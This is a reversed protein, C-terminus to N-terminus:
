VPETQSAVKETLKSTCPQDGPSLLTVVRQPFPIEIGEADFRKKIDRNLDWLTSWYHETRVWPKAVMAIASDEMGVMHVQPEPKDLVNPHQELVDMLVRHVRDSDEAYAFNVKVDVRRVHSATFNIITDGWIRRNPVVLIQNDFTTITTALWNMRKVLGNAGAVQIHDDVDFPRNILIMVGAALNSLSDQVALGVLIGIVGIGAFIPGLSVGITALAIVAGAALVAVGSLATLTDRVLVSLGFRRHRVIRAVVRRVLRAVVWFSLLIVTLLLMRFLLDPGNRIFSQRLQNFQDAWLAAFVDSRLLEIGVEGRERVLLSHQEAVELGVREALDIIRDLQDLNRKQKAQVLGFADKLEEDLPEDTLQVRLEGLSMSDLAVQGALYEMAVSIRERAFQLLSETEMGAAQRIAVQQVVLELYDKRLRTLDDIFVRAIDAQASNEFKPVGEREEAARAELLKERQVSLALGKDLLNELTRKFDDGLQPDTLLRKALQNLRALARLTRADIRTNLGDRNWERLRDVAEVLHDIQNLEMRIAQVDDLEEDTAAVVVVPEVVALLLLLVRFLRYKQPIM